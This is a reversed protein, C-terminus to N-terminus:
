ELLQQLFLKRACIKYKRNEGWNLNTSSEVHVLKGCMEREKSLDQHLEVLKGPLATLPELDVRVGRLEVEEQQLLVQDQRM